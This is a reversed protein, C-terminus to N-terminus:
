QRFIKGGCRFGNFGKTGGSFGRIRVSVRAFKALGGWSGGRLVHLSGLAPGAPNDAPSNQYYDQAYWDGVWEWVNGLMDYLGFGNALKQAVPHAQAMSNGNYWAINDVAGDRAVSTGGRAAYEWEAETPLRGGAWVCYAEADDWPVNSIPLELKSWDADFDPAPPM